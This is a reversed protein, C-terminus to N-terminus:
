PSAYGFYIQLCQKFVKEKRDNFRYEIEKLYMPFHYRSVGWDYHLIHKAYSRFGEIGNIPNKTSKDVVFKSHSVARHKGFRRLSRYGRLADTYYFSGKKSRAKIHNM